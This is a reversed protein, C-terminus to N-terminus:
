PTPTVVVTASATELKTMTEDTKPSNVERPLRGLVKDLTTLATLVDYFASVHSGEASSFATRADTIEIPSGVGAAYRGEALNLAESAQRLLVETAGLRRDAEFLSNMAIEVEARVSQRLQDIRGQAVEITARADLVQHRTLKGDLVPVSLQLGVNWSRDLPSVTGNWDYGASGSISPKLGRRAEDLQCESTKLQQRIARLDHRGAAETILADLTVEPIPPKAPTEEVIRISEECGMTKALTALANRHENEAKILAVQANAVDVEAKTIDYPPKSGVEVFSRVKVLHERYRHLADKQVKVLAQSQLTRFFGTKIDACVQIEKWDRESRAAQVSSEAAQIRSRTRGSDALVQRITVSEATSDILDDTKVAMRSTATSRRYESRNRSFSSSIAVKTGLNAKVQGIKAESSRIQGDAQALTPHYELGFQLCEELTWPTSATQAAALGTVLFISGLALWHRLPFFM